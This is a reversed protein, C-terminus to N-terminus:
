PGQELARVREILDAALDNPVPFALNYQAILWTGEVRRLVGSGRVEGYKENDLREDFWATDLTSDIFVHRETPVYTWGRGVSFFPEAYARFEEVSWRESADTGYFVADPAFLSFYAEGDAESARQHLADLVAAVEVESAPESLSCCGPILLCLLPLVLSLARVVASDHWARRPGALDM